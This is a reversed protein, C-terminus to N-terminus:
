VSITFGERVTGDELEYWLDMFQPIPIERFGNDDNSDSVLFSNRTRGFITLYHGSKYEKSLQVNALVPRGRKLSKTVTAITWEQHVRVTGAQKRVKAILEKLEPGKTETARCYRRIEPPTLPRGRHEVRFGLKRAARVIDAPDTGKEPTARCLRALHRESLNKGLYSLYIKLAAPGCYGDESQHFTGVPLLFYTGERLTIELRSAHSHAVNYHMGERMLLRESYEHLITPWIGDRRCDNDIWIEKPPIYLHTYGQGGQTFDVDGTELGKRVANGDVLWVTVGPLCAIKKIRYRKFNRRQRLRRSKEHHRKLSKVRWVRLSEQKEYLGVHQPPQFFKAAKAM